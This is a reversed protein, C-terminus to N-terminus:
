KKKKPKQIKPAGTSKFVGNTHGASDGKGNKAPFPFVAGNPANKKVLPEVPMRYARLSQFTSLLNTCIWYLVFASPLPWFFMLVTFLLSISIGMVRQQRANAPDSVPSLLTTAMMTIGYIVLLPYDMEGLNPATWGGTVSATNPNIWLFTGQRFEFRYHVMCQYVFLFLPMQLLAPWCGAAPNIGYTRYLEMTKVNLEAPNGKYKEKLENVLPILQQMQRSFVLQRQTLPWITARVMIALLLAAFAYSFGPMRGTLGVLFDIIAYGRALGFVLDRRNRGDLDEIVTAYLKEPTTVKDPFQAHPVLAVERKWIPKFENARSKQHLTMFAANARNIDNRQVAARFQTAAVLVTADMLRAEVDADPTKKTKAEERLKQEFKPLEIAISQDKIERHLTQMAAYIKESSRPEPPRSGFLAQYGLFLVAVILMTQVFNSRPAPQSM